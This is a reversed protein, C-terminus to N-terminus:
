PYIDEKFKEPTKHPIESLRNWTDFDIKKEKRLKEAYKWIVSLPIPTTRCLIPTNIERLENDSLPICRALKKKRMKKLGGGVKTPPTKRMRGYVKFEKVQSVVDTTFSVKRVTSVKGVIDNLVSKVQSHINKTMMRTLVVM